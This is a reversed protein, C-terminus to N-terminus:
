FQSLLEDDSDPKGYADADTVHGDHGSVRTIKKGQKFVLQLGHEIEWDCECSVQVYVDKDGYHRRSVYVTTPRVFQWVEEENKIDHLPQDMEDYDIAELFDKCNKYVLHSISLRYTKGLTFFHNLAADAESLFTEDDAPEYDLFIVPLALSDFFPIPVPTSHWWDPWKDDQKLQGIAQSHIQKSM